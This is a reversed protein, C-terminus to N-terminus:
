LEQKKPSNIVNLIAEMQLPTRLRCKGNLLNRSCHIECCMMWGFSVEGLYTRFAGYRFPSNRVVMCIHLNHIDTFPVAFQFSFSYVSLVLMKSLLCLFPCLYLPHSLSLSHTPQDYCSPTALRLSLQRQLFPGFVLCCGTLHLKLKILPCTHDLSHGYITTLPMSAKFRILTLGNCYLTHPPCRYLVPHSTVNVHTSYLVLYSIVNVGTCWQTHPLIFCLCWIAKPISTICQVGSICFVVM